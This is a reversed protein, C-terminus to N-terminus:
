RKAFKLSVIGRSTRISAIYIGPALAETDMEIQRAGKEIDVRSIAMGTISYISADYATLDTSPDFSLILYDQVPNPAIQAQLLDAIDTLALPTETNSNSYQGLPYPMACSDNVVGTLEGVGSIIWDTIEFTSGGPGGEEIRVAWGSEYDYAQGAGDIDTEGYVDIVRGHEFLEIADNGTVFISPHTFNPYFGFFDNFRTSDDSIFYSKGANLSIAPLRIEMGDTGGGNNAAGVAYVSLDPINKVAYFEAGFEDQSSALTETAFVGVLILGEQLETDDDYIYLRSNNTYIEGVNDQVTLEFEIFETGEVEADDTLVVDAFLIEPAAGSFTLTPTLLEYDSPSATSAAGIGINVISPNGNSNELQFSVGLTDAQGETGMRQIRTTYVIPNPQCTGIAGPSAFIPRNGEIKLFNTSSQWNGLGSNDANIDCIELSSGLGDSMRPWGNEDDYSVSDITVDNANRLIITEGGSNLSGAEWELAPIGFKGEFSKAHETLLMFTGPEFTMAPFTYDVGILYYGEMEIPGGDNNYLELYETDDQGDMNYNIETIVIQASLCGVLLIGFLSLTFEKIMILPNQNSKPCNAM